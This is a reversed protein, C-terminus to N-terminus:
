SDSRDWCKALDFVADTSIHTTHENVFVNVPLEIVAFPNHYVRMGHHTIQEAGPPMVDGDNYEPIEDLVCIASIRTFKRPHLIRSLTSRLFPDVTYVQNGQNFLIVVCAYGPHNRLQKSANKLKDEIRKGYNWAFGVRRHGHERARKLAAVSENKKQATFTHEQHIFVFRVEGDPLRPFNTATELEGSDDLDKVECVVINDVIYDARKEASEDIRVFPLKHEVLYHEFFIEGNTKESM